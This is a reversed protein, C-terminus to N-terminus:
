STLQGHCHMCRAVTATVKCNLFFSGSTSKAGSEGELCGNAITRYELYLVDAHPPESEPLSDSEPLSGTKSKPFPTCILEGKGTFFINGHHILQIATPAAWILKGLMRLLSVLHVYTLPTKNAIPFKYNMFKTWVESHLSILYKKKSHFMSTHM